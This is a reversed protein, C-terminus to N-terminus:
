PDEAQYPFLLNSGALRAVTALTTKAAHFYRGLRVLPFLELPHRALGKLLKSPRLRGFEDIATIASHPIAMEVPDTIARVAMFPVGAEQAVVAVAASEMDAATAGTRRFLTTKEVCGTLIITSEALPGKHFDVHAKLRSTLLEHWTADIPYVSQDAAIITKPLVLSGPSLGSILGGASGWSLLATAGKELLNRAASCARRAGIGSLQMMAGEPLHIVEGAEMPRKALIRAEATMAAVIGTCTM